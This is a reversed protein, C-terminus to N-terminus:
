EEDEDDQDSMRKKLLEAIQLLAKDTTILPIGAQMSQSLLEGDQPLLFGNFNDSDAPEVQLTRSEPLKREMPTSMYFDMYGTEKGDIEQYAFSMVSGWARMTARFCYGNDFVPVCCDQNQHDAGSIMYGNELLEDIIIQILPIVEENSVTISPYNSDYDTWGVIKLDM